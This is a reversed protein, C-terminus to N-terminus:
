GKRAFEVRMKEEHERMEPTFEEGFDAAEFLPRIELTVEGDEAPWRMVWDLADKKSPVEIMCYGAIIEQSGTFPGDTVARKGGITTVRMAQSTPKLGEGGLLIGAAAMSGMYKGMAALLESSPMVGAETNTDAHRLIMFRM